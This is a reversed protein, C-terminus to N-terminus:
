DDDQESHGPSTEEIDHDVAKGVPQIQCVRGGATGLAFSRDFGIVVNGHYGIQQQTPLATIAPSLDGKGVDQDLDKGGQTKQQEIELKGEAQM